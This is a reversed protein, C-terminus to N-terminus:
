LRGDSVLGKLPSVFRVEDSASGAVGYQAQPDELVNLNRRGVSSIHAMESESGLQKRVELQAMKLSPLAGVLNLVPMLGLERVHEDM